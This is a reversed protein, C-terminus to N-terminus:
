YGSFAHVLQLIINIVYPVISVVGVVVSIWFWVQSGRLKAGAESVMRKGVDYPLRDDRYHGLQDVMSKKIAALKAAMDPLQTEPNDLTGLLLVRDGVMEVDYAAADKLAWMVEPSIIALSDIQYGDPMYTVFSQDFDGEFSYKQSRAFEFRFQRSRAKPSDFFLHPVQRPLQTSMIGYYITNVKHEGYKDRRFIDYKFDSYLWDNGQVSAIVQPDRANHVRAISGVVVDDDGAMSGLMWQYNHTQAYAELKALHQKVGKAQWWVILAPLVALVAFTMFLGSGDDDGLYTTLGWLAALVFVLVVCIVMTALMGMYTRVHTIPSRAFITM